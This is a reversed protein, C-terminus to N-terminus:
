AAVTTTTTTGDEEARDAERAQAMASTFSQIWKTAMFAAFGVVLTTLVLALVVALNNDDMTDNTTTSTNISALLAVATEAAAATAPVLTGRVLVLTGHAAFHCVLLGCGLLFALGVSGLVLLLTIACQLNDRRHQARARANHDAARRQEWDLYTNTGTTPQRNRHRGGGGNRRGRQRTAILRLHRPVDQATRFPTHFPEM